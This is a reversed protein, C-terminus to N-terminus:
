LKDMGYPLMMKCIRLQAMELEDYQLPIEINERFLKIYAELVKQSYGLIILTTLSKAPCVTIQPDEQRTFEFDEHLTNSLEEVNEIQNKTVVLIFNFNNKLEATIKGAEYCEKVLFKYYDLFVQESKPDIFKCTQAVRRFTLKDPLMELGCENDGKHEIIANIIAEFKRLEFLQIQRLFITTLVIIGEHGGLTFLHDLYLKDPKEKSINAGIKKLLVLLIHDFVTEPRNEENVLALEKEMDFPNKTLGKLMLSITISVDHLHERNMLSSTIPIEGRRFRVFGQKGPYYGRELPTDIKFEQHSHPRETSM